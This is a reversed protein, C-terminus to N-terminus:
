EFSWPYFSAGIIVVRHNNQIIDSFSGTLPTISHNYKFHLVWKDLVPIEMGTVFSFDIQNYEEPGWNSDTITVEYLYSNELGALLTINRSLHFKGLIQFSIYDFNYKRSNFDALEFGKKNLILIPELSFREVLNFDVSIGVNHSHISKTSVDLDSNVFAYNYGGTIGLRTKSQFDQADLQAHFLFCFIFLVIHPLKMNFNNLRLELDCQKWVPLKLHLELEEKM